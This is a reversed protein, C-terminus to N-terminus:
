GEWTAPMENECRAAYARAAENETDFWCVVEHYEGFDHDFAKIALRAGEPEPGLITRLLTIFRQCEQLAKPYYDPAGVQICDEEYPSSGIVFYNRM